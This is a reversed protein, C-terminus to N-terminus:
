LCCRGKMYRTKVRACARELRYIGRRAPTLLFNPYLDPSESIEDYLPQVISLLVEDDIHIGKLIADWVREVFEDNELWCKIQFPSMSVRGYLFGLRDRKTALTRRYEETYVPSEDRM